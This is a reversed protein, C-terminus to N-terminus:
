ILMFLPHCNPFGDEGVSHCASIILVIRRWSVFAISNLHVVTVHLNQVANLPLRGVQTHMLWLDLAERFLLTALM